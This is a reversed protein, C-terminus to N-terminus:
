PPYKAYLDQAAALKEVIFDPMPERPEGLTLNIEPEMGPAMGDLLERVRQFPYPMAGEYLAQLGHVPQAAVASQASM